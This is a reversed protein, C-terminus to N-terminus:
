DDNGIEWLPFLAPMATRIDAYKLSDKNAM